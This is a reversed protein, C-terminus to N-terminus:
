KMKILFINNRPVFLPFDRSKASKIILQKKNSFSREEADVFEVSERCDAYRNFMKNYVEGLITVNSVPLGKECDIFKKGNFLIETIYIKKKNELNRVQFNITTYNNSLEILM